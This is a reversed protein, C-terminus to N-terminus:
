DDEAAETHTQDHALSRLETELEVADPLLPALEPLEDLSTLGLKELFLNSTVLVAAGTEEDQGAEVILGRALLTRVVGDVNVGRVASVRARSVPQLYAIVALTEQAAQSLKASRGDVLWAAILEAHEARTYYRWGQGVQRLEFGRKTKDYFDVLIALAATVVDVPARVVEALQVTPMPEDAMLLVAELASAIEAPELGSPIMPDATM